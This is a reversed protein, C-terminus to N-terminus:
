GEDAADSTYLLCTQDVAELFREEPFVPMRMRRCSDAMRKANLDPRFCIIKGDKATYAKLGEFCTQAYHLVCASESLTIDPQDSLQGDDWMGDYYTAVYRYDTPTYGFSLNGWDLPKKEM